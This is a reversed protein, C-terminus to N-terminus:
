PIEEQQKQMTVDETHQKQEKAWLARTELVEKQLVEFEQRLTIITSTLKEFADSKQPIITPTSPITVEPLIDTTEETKKAKTTRKTTTATPM